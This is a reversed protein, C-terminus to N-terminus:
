HVCGSEELPLSFELRSLDQNQVLSQTQNEAGSTYPNAEGLSTPIWAHGFPPMVMLTLWPRSAFDRIGLYGSEKRQSPMWGNLCVFYVDKIWKVGLVISLLTKLHTVIHVEVKSIHKSKVIM